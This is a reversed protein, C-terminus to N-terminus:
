PATARTSLECVVDGPEGRENHLRRSSGSKWAVGDREVDCRIREPNSACAREYRVSFEVMAHGTSTTPESEWPLRLREETQKRADIDLLIGVMGEPRGAADVLTRGVSQVWHPSGEGVQM